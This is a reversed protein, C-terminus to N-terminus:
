PAEHQGLKRREPKRPLPLLADVMVAVITITTILVILLPPPFEFLDAFGVTMFCWFCWASRPGAWFMM